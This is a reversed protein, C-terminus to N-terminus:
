SDGKVSVHKDQNNYTTTVAGQLYSQYNPDLRANALTVTQDNNVVAGATSTVTVSGFLRVWGRIGVTETVGTTNFLYAKPPAAYATSAAASALVAAAILTRKM